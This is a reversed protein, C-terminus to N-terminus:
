PDVIKSLFLPIKNRRDIILALFPQDVNFAIEQPADNISLTVVAVSQVAAAVSGVEDVRLVAEQLIDDVKVHEHNVTLYPLQSNLTFLDVLGFQM